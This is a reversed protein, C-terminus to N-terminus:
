ITKLTQFVANDRHSLIFFQTIDTLHFPFKRETFNFAQINLLLISEVQLKGHDGESDLNDLAKRAERKHGTHPPNTGIRSDEWDFILWKRELNDM